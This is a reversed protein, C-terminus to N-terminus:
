ITLPSTIISLVLFLDVLSKMLLSLSCCSPIDHRKPSRQTWPDSFGSVLRTGLSCATVCYFILMFEYILFLKMKLKTHDIVKELSKHKRVGIM